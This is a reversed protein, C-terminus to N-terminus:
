RCFKQVESWKTAGGLVGDAAVDLEELVKSAWIYM